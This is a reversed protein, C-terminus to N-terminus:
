TMQSVRKQVIQPTSLGKVALPECTYEVRSSCMGLTLHTLVSSVVQEGTGDGRCCVEFVVGLHNENKIPVVRPGDAKKSFM